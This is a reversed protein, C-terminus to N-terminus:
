NVSARPAAAIDAGRTFEGRSLIKRYADVYDDVMRPVDFREEVHERCARPDIIADVKRAAEVMEDLTDVIFGTRGHAVVEAASGRNFAVVPTGCAMAEVM